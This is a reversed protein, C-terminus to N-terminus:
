AAYLTVGKEKVTREISSRWKSMQTFEAATVVQPEVPVRLGRLLRYAQAARLYPPADSEAVVVLLHM